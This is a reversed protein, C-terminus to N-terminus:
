LHVQSRRADLSIMMIDGEYDVAKLEPVPVFPAGNIMQSM